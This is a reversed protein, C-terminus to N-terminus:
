VNKEELAIVRLDLDTAEQGAEISYLDHETQAIGLLRTAEKQPIMKEIKKGGRYYCKGDFTDGIQIPWLEVAMPPHDYGNEKNIVNANYYDAVIVNKVTNKDILAWRDAM